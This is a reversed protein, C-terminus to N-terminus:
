GEHKKIKEGRRQMQKYKGSVKQTLEKVEDQSECRKKSVDLRNELGVVADKLELINWAGLTELTEMVAQEQKQNELM